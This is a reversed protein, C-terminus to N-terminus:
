AGARRRLAEVLKTCRDFDRHLGANDAELDAVRRRLAANEQDVRNALAEWRQDILQGTEQRLKKATAADVPEQSRGRLYQVIAWALTGILAGTAGTAFDEGGIGAGLAIAATTLLGYTM